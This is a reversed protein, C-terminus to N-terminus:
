KRDVVRFMEQSHQFVKYIADTSIPYPIIIEFGHNVPKFPIGLQRKLEGNDFYALYMYSTYGYKRYKDGWFVDEKNSLIEEKLQCFDIYRADGPIIQYTGNKLELAVYSSNLNNVLICFREGYTKQIHTITPRGLDFNTIIVENDSFITSLYPLNRIEMVRMSVLSDIENMEYAEAAKSAADLSILLIISLLLPKM